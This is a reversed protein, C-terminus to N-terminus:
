GAEGTQEVKRQHPCYGWAGLSQNCNHCLVRYGEPFGQTLLWRWMNSGSGVTKRHQTGGGNIHDLALFEVCTEGCCACKPTGGSYHELVKIRQRRFWLRRWVQRRDKNRDGYDIARTRRCTKCENHLGDPMQANRHFYAATAPLEQHCGSCRRTNEM